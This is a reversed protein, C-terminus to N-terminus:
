FKISLSNRTAKVENQLISQLIHCSAVFCRRDSKRKRKGNECCSGVVGLEDGVIVIM